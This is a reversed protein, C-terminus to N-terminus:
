PQAARARDIVSQGGLYVPLGLLIAEALRTSVTEPAGLLLAAVLVCAVLALATFKKSRWCPQDM